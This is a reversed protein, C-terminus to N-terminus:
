SCPGRGPRNGWILGGLWVTRRILPVLVTGAWGQAPPNLKWGVQLNIWVLWDCQEEGKIVVFGTWMTGLDLRMNGQTVYLIRKGLGRTYIVLFSNFDDAWRQTDNTQGWLGLIPIEGEGVSYSAILVYWYFSRSSTQCAWMHLKKGKLSSNKPLHRKKKYFRWM